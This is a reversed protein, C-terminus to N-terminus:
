IVMGDIHKEACAVNNADLLNKDAVVLRLDNIGLMNLATSLWPTGFDVESRVPVGDPAVVVWTPRDHLLGEPWGNKYQFTRGAVAVQDFWAKFSAPVSFNYIPLGVVVAEAWELESILTRSTKHASEDQDIWTETIFPVTEVLDRKRHKVDYTEQLRTVIRRTLTRTISSGTRASSQIELLKMEQRELVGSGM